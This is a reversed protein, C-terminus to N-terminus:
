LKVARLIHRKGPPGAMKETQFGASQLARVVTGKVSYTVLIGGSSLEGALNRFILETWLEPQADPGFADFYVLDFIGPAPLYAELKIHIKQLTFNPSIEALGNWKAFHLKAFVKSYDVSGFLHPYNLGRWCDEELPFAEIATYHVKIAHKEAEILTLLANLGTGFGVELINLCMLGNGIGPHFKEIARLFGTEIFIYRSEQVAGFTSHYHQNLGEHFFTDSGDRTSVIQLNSSKIIRFNPLLSKWRLPALVCVNLEM